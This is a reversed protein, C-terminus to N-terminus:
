QFRGGRGLHPQLAGAAHTANKDYFYMTISRLKNIATRGEWWCGGTSQRGDKRIAGEQQNDGRRGVLARRNITM